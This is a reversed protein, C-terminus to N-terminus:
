MVILALINLLSPMQHAAIIFGLFSVRFSSTDVTTPSHHLLEDPQLMALATCTPFLVDAVELACTIHNKGQFAADRLLSLVAYPCFLNRNDSELIISGFDFFRKYFERKM